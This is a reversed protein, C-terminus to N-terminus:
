IFAIPDKDDPRYSAPPEEDRIELDPFDSRPFEEDAGADDGCGFNDNADGQNTTGSNVSAAADYQSAAIKEKAKNVPKMAIELNHMDKLTKGATRKADWGSCLTGDDNLNAVLAAEVKEADRLIRSEKEHIARGSLIAPSSFTACALSGM